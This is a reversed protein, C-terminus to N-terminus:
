PARGPVRIGRPDWTGALDGDLRRADQLAHQILAHWEGWYGGGVRFIGVTALYYLFLGDEPLAERGRVHWYLLDAAGRCRPDEHTAGLMSRAALVAATNLPDFVNGASFGERGVAGDPATISDLYYSARNFISPEVKLGAYEAIKLAMVAVVTVLPDPSEAQEGWAGSKGRIRQMSALVDAANQADERLKKEASIGYAESLVLTAWAHDYVSPGFAGESGRLSKLGDLGRMVAYEYVDGKRWDGSEVIAIL